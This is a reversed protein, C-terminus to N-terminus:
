PVSVEEISLGVAEGLGCATIRDVFARSPHVITFREGADARAAVLLQLVAQGASEVESADLETAGAVLRAHLETAVITTCHAPLKLAGDAADSISQM